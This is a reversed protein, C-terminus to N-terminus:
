HLHCQVHEAQVKMALSRAGAHHPLTKVETGARPTESRPGLAVWKGTGAQAELQCTCCRGADGAQSWTPVRWQLWPLGGLWVISLGGMGGRAKEKFSCSRATGRALEMPAITKSGPYM